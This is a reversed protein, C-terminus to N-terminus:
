CSELLPFSVNSYIYSFAYVNNTTVNLLCQNCEYHYDLYFNSTSM